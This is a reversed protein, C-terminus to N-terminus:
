KVRRMSADVVKAAEVMGYPKGTAPNVEYSLETIASMRAADAELRSDGAVRAASAKPINTGASTNILGVARNLQDVKGQWARREASGEPLRYVKEGRNNFSHEGLRRNAEALDKSIAEVQAAHHDADLPQSGTGVGVITNPPLEGSRDVYVANPHQSPLSPSAASENASARAQGAPEGMLSVQPGIRPFIEDTM